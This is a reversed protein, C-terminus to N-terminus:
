AKDRPAKRRDVRGFLEGLEEGGTIALRTLAFDYKVPDDPSIQRFADTMELASRMDAAARKTVGAARALRHMHTDMPVLLKAPPVSRWVGPDVDDQRVMWRLFLNLRKCASGRSPDALLHGCRDAPGSRIESVMASLGPLVTEDRAGLGGLFCKELSGFRRMVRRLGLLLAAVAPGDAFRHRFDALQREMAADRVDRLHRWPRPGLRELVDAVSKHIQGVRGYALSSAVMGVVERDRPDSYLRVFGVPDPHIHAPRNYKAYLDELLEAHVTLPM